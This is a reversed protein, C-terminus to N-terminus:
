KLMWAVGLGVAAAVVLGAGIQWLVLEAKILAIQKELEAIRVRYAEAEAKSSSDLQEFAQRSETLSSELDQRMTELEALKQYLTESDEAWARWEEKLAQWDESLTSSRPTESPPSSTSAPTEPSSPQVTSGTSQPVASLCALWFFALVFIFLIQRNEWRM